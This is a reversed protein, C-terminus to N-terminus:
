DKAKDTTYRKQLAEYFKRMHFRAHQQQYRYNEGEPCSLRAQCGRTHCEADPHDHLYDFCIKVDYNGPTFAAVPCGSLCPRSECQDCAHQHSAQDGYLAPTTSIAIAFRYAHWLGYRPHILMGLVSSRLNEAKGAWRLFPQFPPGGFPFLALGNWRDALEKGIRQSWRDLPDDKGDKHEPSNSFIPWISSGANGLLLMTKPERHDSLSPVNDQPEIRFAGRLVLGYQDAQEIYDQLQMAPIETAM